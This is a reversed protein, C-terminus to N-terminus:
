HGARLPVRGRTVYALTGFVATAVIMAAMVAFMTVLPGVSEFVQGILWPIFMGGLSTGIFFLSTVRGTIPMHREAFALIVPFLPGITFGAGFTGIWIATQSDPLALILAMSALSGLLAGWLITRPSFRLSLFVAALRGLAVAGWYLSTIYSAVVITGLGLEIVYTYIWWGFGLEAGIFAFFFLAILAVAQYDTRANHQSASHQATNCREPSPQALLAIAAPLGLLALVWFGWSIDGSRETLEAIIMPAFFAGAGFCFHMANIYPGVNHGHVWMLLTNCGIDLMGSCAGLLFMVLSLVWLLPILPVLFLAVAACFVAIGMVPHGAVRDLLQGGALYGALQGLAFASLLFSVESLQTRTHEALGPLAPGLAAAIMGLFALTIFYAATKLRKSKREHVVTQVSLMADSTTM